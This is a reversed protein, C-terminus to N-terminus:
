KRMQNLPHIEFFRNRIESLCLSKTVNNLIWLPSLIHTERITATSHWIDFEFIQVFQLIFPNKKQSPFHIYDDTALPVRNMCKEINWDTIRYQRSTFYEMGWLVRQRERNREAKSESMNKKWLIDSWKGRWYVLSISILM